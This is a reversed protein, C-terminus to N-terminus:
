TIDASTVAPPTAAWRTPDNDSGTPFLFVHLYINRSGATLGTMSPPSDADFIWFRCADGSLNADLDSWAPGATPMVVIMGVRSRYGSPGPLNYTLRLAGRGPTTKGTINPRPFGSNVPLFATPRYRSTGAGVYRLYSQTFLNLGSASGTRRQAEQVWWYRVWDDVTVFPTFPSQFQRPVSNWWLRANRFAERNRQQTRTDPNTAPRFRTMVDTSRFRKFVLGGFKGSIQDVLPSLVIRAM